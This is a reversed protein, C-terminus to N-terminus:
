SPIKKQQLRREYSHGVQRLLLEYKADDNPTLKSFSLRDKIDENLGSHLAERWAIGSLCVQYNLAEMRVIYDQFDGKYQLDKMKRLNEMEEETDIFREEISSVFAAWTDVQFHKKMQDERNNYWALAMERLISGVFIIKDDDKFYKKKFYKLYREV